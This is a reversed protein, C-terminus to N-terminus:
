PELIDLKRSADLGVPDRGELGEVWGLLARQQPLLEGGARGHRLIVGLDARTDVDPLEPLLEVAGIPGLAALLQGATGPTSYAVGNWVASPVPIRGGFLYYGGDTAPGLVFPVGESLRRGAQLLDRPALLPCDAGILLAAPHSELLHRYVRDQREGLSGEGQWLQPLGRWRPDDVGDEEAVAWYPALGLERARELVAATVALALRYFEAAREAGIGAALRTKGPSHGPTRVFAAVAVSVEAVALEM